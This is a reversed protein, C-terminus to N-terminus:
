YKSKNTNVIDSKYKETLRIKVGGRVRNRWIFLMLPQTLQLKGFFLLLQREFQFSLPATKGGVHRITVGKFCFLDKVVRYIRPTKKVPGGGVYLFVLTFLSFITVLNPSDSFKTINKTFM